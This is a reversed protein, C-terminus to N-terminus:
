NVTVAPKRRYRFISSVLGRLGSSLTRNGNSLGNCVYEQLPVLKQYNCLKERRDVMTTSPSLIEIVLCPKQKVYPDSDTPDCVVMVDPYYTTHDATPITLKTDSFLIRCSKSLLNPLILAVLNGSIVNHAESVGAMAYTQGYIFEYKESSAHQYDLYESYTLEQQRVLM